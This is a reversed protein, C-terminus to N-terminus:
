LEIVNLTKNTNTLVLPYDCAPHDVVTVQVGFCDEIHQATFVDAPHGTAFVRGQKLLLVQSAYAAALQFDHLVAMVLVGQAALTAALQLALQQHLIDMGTVPEDLLLMKRGAYDYDQLGPTELLQALVRAMQVRQQQGGSLTTYTRDRLDYVQLTKMAFRIIDRTYHQVDNRQVFNKSYANHVYRGMAVVEQVTFPQNLHLQQSLVARAGAQEAASLTRLEKNNLLVQGKYQPYEGALVKLLSSKGAGNAGLIVWLEGAAADLHLQDLITHRGLSLSLNKVSLM